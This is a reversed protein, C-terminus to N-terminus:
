VNLLEKIRNFKNKLEDMEEKTFYLGLNKKYEEPDKSGISKPNKELVYQEFFRAFTENQNFYFFDANFKMNYYVPLEKIMQNCTFNLINKKNESLTNLFDVTKNYLNEGIAKKFSNTYEENDRTVESVMKWLHIYPFDTDRLKEKLKDPLASRIETLIPIETKLIDNIEYYNKFETKFYLDKKKDLFDKSVFNNLINKIEENNSHNTLTRFIFHGFEHNFSNKHKLNVYITNSAPEYAGRIKLGQQIQPKYEFNIVLKQPNLESVKGIDIVDKLDGILSNTIRDNGDIIDIKYKKLMKEKFDLGVKKYVHTPRGRKDIVQTRVLKSIDKM